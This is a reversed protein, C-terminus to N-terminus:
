RINNSLASVHRLKESHSVIVVCVFCKILNICNKDMVITVIIVALHSAITDVDQKAITRITLTVQNIASTDELMTPTDERSHREM